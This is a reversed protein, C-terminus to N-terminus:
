PLQLRARLEDVLPKRKDIFYQLMREKERKLFFDDYSRKFIGNLDGPIETTCVSEGGVWNKIRSAFFLPLDVPPGYHTLRALEKQMEKESAGEVQFPAGSRDIFVPEGCVLDKLAKCERLYGFIMLGDSRTSKKAIDAAIMEADCEGFFLLHAAEHLLVFSQIPLLADKLVPHLFVNQTLANAYAYLMKSEYFEAHELRNRLSPLVPSRPDVKLADDIMALAHARIPEAWAVRTKAHAINQAPLGALGCMLILLVFLQRARNM